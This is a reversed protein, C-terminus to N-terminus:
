QNKMYKHQTKLNVIVSTVFTTFLHTHSSSHIIVAVGTINGTTNVNIASKRFYLRCFIYYFTCVHRFSVIHNFSNKVPFIQEILYLIPTYFSYYILDKNFVYFGYFYMCLNQGHSIKAVICILTRLNRIKNKLLSTQIKTCKTENLSPRCQLQQCEYFTSSTGLINRNIALSKFINYSHSEM